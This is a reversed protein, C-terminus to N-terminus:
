FSFRRQSIFFPPPPPLITTTNHIAAVAARWSWYGHRAYPISPPLSAPPPPKQKLPVRRVMWIGLRRGVTFSFFTPRYFNLRRKPRNAEVGSLRRQWRRGVDGPTNKEERKGRRDVVWVREGVERRLYIYIYKYTCNYTYMPGKKNM